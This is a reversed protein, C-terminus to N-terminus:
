YYRPCPSYYYLSFLHLYLSVLVRGSCTESGFARTACQSDATAASFICITCRRRVFTACNACMRAEDGRLCTTSCRQVSIEIYEDLFASIFSIFSRSNNLALMDLLRQQDDLQASFTSAVNQLIYSATPVSLRSTSPPLWKSLDECGIKSDCGSAMRFGCNVVRRNDTM